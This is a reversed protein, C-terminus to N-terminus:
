LTLPMSPMVGGRINKEYFETEKQLLWELDDKVDEREIEYQKLTMDGNQSYLCAFLRM